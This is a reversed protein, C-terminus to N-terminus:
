RDLKRSIEKLTEDISKIKLLFWITVVIPILWIFLVILPGLFGFM